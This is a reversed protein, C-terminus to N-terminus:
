SSLQRDDAQFVSFVLFLPLISILILWVNQGFHITEVGLTYGQFSGIEKM